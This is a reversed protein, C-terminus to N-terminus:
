LHFSSYMIYTTKNWSVIKEMFIFFGGHTSLVLPFPPYRTSSSLSSFLSLGSRADSLISSQHQHKNRLCIHSADLSTHSFDHSFVELTSSTMEDCTREKGELKKGLKNSDTIKKRETLFRGKKKLFFFIM